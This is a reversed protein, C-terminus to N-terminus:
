YLYMLTQDIKSRRTFESSLRFLSEKKRTERGPGPIHDRPRRSLVSHFSSSSAYSPSLLHIASAFPPSLARLRLPFLTSYVPISLVLHIGLLYLSFITALPAAEADNSCYQVDGVHPGSRTRERESERERQSEGKEGREERWAVRGGNGGLRGRGRGGGGGGGGEM